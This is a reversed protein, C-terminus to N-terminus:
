QLFTMLQDCDSPKIHLHMLGGVQVVEAVQEPGGKVGGVGEAQGLHLRDPDLLPLKIRLIFIALVGAPVTISLDQISRSYRDPCVLLQHLDKGPLNPSKYEEWEKIQM